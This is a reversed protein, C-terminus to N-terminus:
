CVGGQSWLGAPKVNEEWAKLNSLNRGFDVVQSHEGQM